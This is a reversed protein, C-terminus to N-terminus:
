PTRFNGITTGTKQDMKAGFKKTYIKDRKKMGTIENEGPMAAAPNGTVKDGPKAGAKKLTNPVSSIEKKFSKGRSILNWKNNKEIDVDTDVVVDHVPKSTRDGGMQKRLARARIVRKSTPTVKSGTTKPPISDKTYDSQNKFSFIGTEHHKSNSFVYERPEVHGRSPSRSFGAKKLAARNSNQRAQSLRSYKNSAPGLPALRRRGREPTSAEALELFEKFTIM